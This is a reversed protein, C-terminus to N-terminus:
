FPWCRDQGAASPRAPPRHVPGSLLSGCSTDMLNFLNQLLRYSSSAPLVVGTSQEVRGLIIAAALWGSRASVVRIPSHVVSQNKQGADEYFTTREAASLGTKVALYTIWQGPSPPRTFPTIKTRRAHTSVWCKRRSAGSPFSRDPARRLGKITASLNPKSFTGPFGGKSSIARACIWYGM